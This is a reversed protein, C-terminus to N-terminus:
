HNYSGMNM